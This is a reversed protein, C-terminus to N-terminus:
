KNFWIPYRNAQGPQTLNLIYVKSTDSLITTGSLIAMRAVPTYEGVADGVITDFFEFPLENAAEALSAYLNPGFQIILKGDYSLCLQRTTYQPGTVPILTDINIYHAVDLATTLDLPEPIQNTISTHVLDVVAENPVDLINEDVVGKCGIGETFYRTSTRSLTLDANATIAADIAKLMPESRVYSRLLKPTSALEPMIILSYISGYDPAPKFEIRLVRALGPTYTPYAANTIIAQGADNIYLYRIGAAMANGQTMDVTLSTLLWL